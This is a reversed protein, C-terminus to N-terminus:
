CVKQWHGTAQYLQGLLDYRGIRKYISEAEDQAHLLAVLISARTLARHLVAAGETAANALQVFTTFM